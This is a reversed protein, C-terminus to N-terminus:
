TETTGASVSCPGTWLSHKRHAPDQETHAGHLLRNFRLLILWSGRQAHSPTLTKCTQTAVTIGQVPHM